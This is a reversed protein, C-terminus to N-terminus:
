HCAAFVRESFPVPITVASDVILGRLDLQRYGLSFAKSVVASYIGYPVRGDIRIIGERCRFTLFKEYPSLHPDALVALQLNRDPSSEFPLTEVVATSRLWRYLWHVENEFQSRWLTVSMEKGFRYYRVGSTGHEMTFAPAGTNPTRATFLSTERCLRSPNAPPCPFSKEEMRWLSEGRADLLHLSNEESVLDTQYEVMGIVRNERILKPPESPTAPILMPRQMLGIGMNPLDRQLTFYMAEPTYSVYECLELAPLTRAGLCFAFLTLSSLSFKM